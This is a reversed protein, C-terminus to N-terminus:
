FCYLKSYAGDQDGLISGFSKFKEFHMENIYTSSIQDCERVRLNPLSSGATKVDKHGQTATKTSSNSLPNSTLCFDDAPAGNFRDNRRPSPPGKDSNDM